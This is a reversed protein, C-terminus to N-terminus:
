IGLEILKKERELKMLEKKSTKGLLNMYSHLKQHCSRSCISGYGSLSINCWLCKM